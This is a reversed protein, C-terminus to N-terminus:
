QTAAIEEKFLVWSDQLAQRATKAGYYAEPVIKPIFYQYYYLNLWDAKPEGEGVEIGYTIAENLFPDDQIYKEKLSTLVVPVGAEEYRKWAEDRDNLYAMFDWVEQKHKTGKGMFLFLMGCHTGYKKRHLKLFGIQDQMSPDDKVIAKLQDATAISIAAKGTVFLSQRDNQEQTIPIAVNKQYLRALFDLTEIYEENTAWIPNGEEDAIEAGNSNKFSNITRNGIPLNMGARKVIEGDRITLKVAAEAIEEWTKPPRNPDLGAEGFYDKRYPFLMPHSYYPMGYYDGRYLGLDWVSQVIDKKNEWGDIFSNLSEIQGLTVRPGIHMIAQGIIDVPIGGAFSTNLKAEIEEGWAAEVYQIEIGPNAREFRDIMGLWYDQEAPNVGAKYFLLTIAEGKMGEQGGNSFLPQVVLAVLLMLFLVLRVVKNMNKEKFSNNGTVIRSIESQGQSQERKGPGM